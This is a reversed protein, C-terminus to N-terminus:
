KGKMYIVGLNTQAKAYGQEASKRTWLAAEKYNRAIGQSNYYMAGLSHQAYVHGQKAATIYMVKVKEMIKQESVTLTHWSAKGSQVSLYPPIMMIAAEEFIKEPGDPLDARCLPCAQLVGLKRLAEVCEPHFDHECPLTCLTADSLSELCIPCSEGSEEAQEYEALSANPKEIKPRRKEAAICGGKHGNKWHQKQCAKSCYHAAKCQGCTLKAGSTGCNSCEKISPDSSKKKDMARRATRKQQM